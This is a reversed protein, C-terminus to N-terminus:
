MDTHQNVEPMEFGNGSAEHPPTKGSIKEVKIEEPNIISEDEGRERDRRPKRDRSRSRRRKRDRSRSRKPREKPSRSRRRKPRETSLILNLYSLFFLLIFVHVVM